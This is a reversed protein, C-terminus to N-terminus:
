YNLSFWKNNYNLLYDQNVPLEFIVGGTIEGGEYLETRLLDDIVIGLPAPSNITRGSSTVVKFVQPNISLYRDEGSYDKNNIITIEVYYYEYGDKAPSNFPNAKAVIDSAREGKYVKDIHMTVNFKGEYTDIDFSDWDSWVAYPDKRTGAHTTEHIWGDAFVSSISILVFFVILLKKM